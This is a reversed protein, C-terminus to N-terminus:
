QRNIDSAIKAAFATLMGLSWAPNRHAEGCAQYDWERRKYMSIILTGILEGGEAEQVKHRLCKVTDHSVGNTAVLKFPPKVRAEADATPATSGTGGTGERDAQAEV